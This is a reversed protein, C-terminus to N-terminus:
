TTVRSSPSTFFNGFFIHYNSFGTSQLVDAYQLVVPAGLGLDKYKESKFTTSDQYPEFYVIYGVRTTGVSFKYGWRIPKGKIFQKCVHRGFHPLMSEDVSHNEKTPAFELFKKNLERFLPRVKAFRDYKKLNHNDVCHFNIILYQFRDRSISSSIPANNTDSSNQWYMKKRSVNCYDSVLRVGIFCYIDDVTANAQRNKQSAYLNTHQVIEEIINHDFFRRFLSAPSCNNKTHCVFNWTPFEEECTKELRITSMKQKKKIKRKVSRSLPLDDDSDLDGAMVDEDIVDGGAIVEEATVDDSNERNGIM